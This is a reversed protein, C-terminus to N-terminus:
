TKIAASIRSLHSPYFNQWNNTAYKVGDLADNM